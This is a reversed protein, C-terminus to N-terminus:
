DSASRRTVAMAQLLEWSILTASMMLLITAGAFLIHSDGVADPSKVAAYAMAGFALLSIAHRRLANWHPAENRWSRVLNLLHAAVVAGSIAAVALALASIERAGVKPFLAGLSFVFVAIYNRFSQEALSKQRVQGDGFVESANLSVAVFLLGMLTAAAAATVSYLGAWTEM